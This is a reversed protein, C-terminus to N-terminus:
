GGSKATKEEAADRLEGCTLTYTTTETWVAGSKDVGVADTNEITISVQSDDPLGECIEIGREMVDTQEGDSSGDGGAVREAENEMLLRM